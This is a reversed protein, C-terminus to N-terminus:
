RSALFLDVWARDTLEPPLANAALGHRSAIRRFTQRSLHPRLIQGIGNGPGTFAAEVFRHYAPRESPRLLPAQRRHLRLVGSDVSPAPDFACRPVRLEFAIDYWPWWSATLLTGGARKRAVEYQLMVTARDWGPQTLLRRLMATGIGYPLNAAVRYPREPFRFRLMDTQVVRVTPGFRRRLRGAWHADLEVATVHAGARTLETTLAGAGAGLDVVQHGPGIELLEVIRRATTTDVLFNQGLRKRRSPHGTPRATPTTFRPRYAM